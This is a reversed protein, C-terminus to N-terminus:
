TEDVEAPHNESDVPPAGTAPEPAAEPGPSTGPSGADARVEAEPAPEPAELWGKLRDRLEVARPVDGRLVDVECEPDLLLDYLSLVGSPGGDPALRMRLQYEGDIVAAYKMDGSVAFRPENLLPVGAAAADSGGAAGRGRAGGTTSAPKLLVEGPFDCEVRAVALLTRGLDHLSVPTRIPEERALKPGTILLPVRLTPPSLRAHDFSTLSQGVSGAYALISRSLLPSEVIPRMRRDVWTLEGRYLNEVYALDTIGEAWAPLAEPAGQKRARRPDKAADYHERRFEEPPDYPALPDSLQLWVFSAQGRLDPVLELLTEIAEEADLPEDAAVVQTFGSTLESGPPGLEPSSLVAATHWGAARFCEPLSAGPTPRREHVPHHPRGAFLSAYSAEPDNTGAWAREFVVGRRALLEFWPTEIAGEIGAVSFHDARHGDATVLVVMTKEQATGLLTPPSMTCLADYGPEAILEFRVEVQQGEFEALPITRTIWGDVLGTPISAPDVPKRKREEPIEEGFAAGSREKPEAPKKRRAAVKGQKKQSKGKGKGKARARAARKQKLLAIRKRKAELYAPDHESYVVVLDYEFPLKYVHQTGDETTILVEIEVPAVPGRVSDPLGYDIRLAHGREVRFSAELPRASSLGIAPRWDNYIEVSAPQDLPPLQLELPDRYLELEVVSLRDVGVVRLVLEDCPELDEPPGFRVQVPEAEGRNEARTSGSAILERDRTLEAEVVAQGRFLLLASLRDIEVPDFVGPVRVEFIREDGSPGSLAVANAKSGDPLEVRNATSKGAMLLWDPLEGFVQFRSLRSSPEPSEGDPAFSLRVKRTVGPPGPPAEPGGCSPALTAFLVLAFPAFRPCRRPRRPLFPQPRMPRRTYRM